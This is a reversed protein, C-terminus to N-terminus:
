RLTNPQKGESDMHTMLYSLTMLSDGLHVNVTAIGEYHYSFDYAGPQHLDGGGLYALVEVAEAAKALLAVPVIHFQQM